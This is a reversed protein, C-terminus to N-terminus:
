GVTDYVKRLDIFVLHVDKNKAKKNEISHYLHPRSKIKRYHFRDARRKKGEICKQIKNGLIRGYM